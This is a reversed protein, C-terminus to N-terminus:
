LAAPGGAQSRCFRSRRRRRCCPSLRRRPRRRSMTPRSAARAPTTTVGGAAAPAGCVYSGASSPPASKVGTFIYDTAGNFIETVPGCTPAGATTVSGLVPGGPATAFPDTGAVNAAIKMQFLTPTPVNACFFISGTATGSAYYANDFAGVYAIGNGNAQVTFPAGAYYGPLTAGWNVNAAFTTAAQLILPGGSAAACNAGTPDYGASTFYAKGAVADVLPPSRFGCATTLVASSVAAGGAAAVRYIRGNPAGILVNGSVPDYVPSPLMQGAAITVPWGTAVEAPTGAAPNFINAFKHLVGKDDGVYLTDTGYDYYPASNTVLPAGSLAISTMCPAACARFGAAATATLTVLSAGKKWKLLVLNSSAGVTQMFALASGDWSLVVSNAIAGGTNYQWYVLPVAGACGGKYLNDYAVVSAATTSGAVGTNYVVFDPSADSDCYASNVDFSFKAPFQGLNVATASSPATAMSWDRQVSARSNQFRRRNAAAAMRRAQAAFRPEHVIRSWRAQTGNRQADAQSGPHSFVLHRHSWDEPAGQALGPSSLAALVPLMCAFACVGKTIFTLFTPASSGVKLAMAQLENKM